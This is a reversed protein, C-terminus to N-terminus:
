AARDEAIPTAIKKVKRGKARHVQCRRNPGGMPNTSLKFPEGCKACHSLWALLEITAGDQRVHPVTGTFTYIQGRYDFSAGVAPPADFGFKEVVTVSSASKEPVQFGQLIGGRYPPPIKVTTKELLGDMSNEMSNEMSIVAHDM